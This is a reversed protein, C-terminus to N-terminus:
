RPVAAPPAADHRRVPDGLRRELLREAAVGRGRADPVRRDLREALAEGLVGLRGVGLHGERRPPPPAPKAEVPRRVHEAGWLDDAGSRERALGLRLRRRSAAHDREGLAGGLERPVSRDLRRGSGHEPEDHEGLAQTGLSPVRDLEEPRLADLELDERAIRRGGDRGDGAVDADRGLIGDVSPLEGVDASSSRRTATPAETM